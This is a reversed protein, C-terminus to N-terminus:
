GRRRYTVRCLHALRSLHRRSNFGESPTHIYLLRPLGSLLTAYAEPLKWGTDPSWLAYSVSGHLSAFAPSLDCLFRDCFCDAKAFREVTGLGIYFLSNDNGSNNM